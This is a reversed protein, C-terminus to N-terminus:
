SALSKVFDDLESYQFIDSLFELLGDIIMLVERLVNARAVMHTDM